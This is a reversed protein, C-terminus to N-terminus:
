ATRERKAAIPKQIRYAVSQKQPQQQAAPAQVLRLITRLDQDTLIVERGTRLRLHTYLNAYKEELAKLAPKQLLASDVYLIKIGEDDKQALALLRAISDKDMGSEQLAQTFDKLFATPVREKAYSIDDDSKTTFGLKRAKSEGLEKGHYIFGDKYYLGFNEPKIFLLQRKPDSKGFLLHRKGAPLLPLEGSNGFRIDIGYHRFQQQSVTFHSSERPYAFPNFSANLDPDAITGTLLQNFWKKAKLGAVTGGYTQVYGMLFNNIRWGVDELVFTGEEFIQNNEIAQSYFFWILAIISRLYEEQNRTPITATQDTLLLSMYYAGLKIQGEIFDQSLGTQNVIGKVAEKVKNTIIYAFQNANANVRFEYLPNSLVKAHMLKIRNIDTGVDGLLKSVVYWGQATPISTINILQGMSEEVELSFARRIEKLSIGELTIVPYYYEYGVMSAGVPQELVNGNLRVFRNIAVSAPAETQDFVKGILDSNM